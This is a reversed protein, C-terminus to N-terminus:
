NHDHCWNYAAARAVSKIYIM